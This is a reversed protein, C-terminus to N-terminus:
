SCASTGLPRTRNPPQTAVVGTLREETAPGHAAGKTQIYMTSTTIMITNTKINNHLIPIWKAM